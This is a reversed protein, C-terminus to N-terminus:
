GVPTPHCVTLLFSGGDDSTVSHPRGGALTALAGTELTYETDGVQLRICGTLVHVSIPGEARHEPIAGGVGVTVLTVRLGGQKVLTRANRGSRGLIERDSVAAREADLRFILVDGSTERDLSSM